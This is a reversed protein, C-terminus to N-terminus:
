LLVALAIASLLLAADRVFIDNFGTQTLVFLLHVAMGWAAIRRVLRHPFLLATALLLEIGGAIRLLVQSSVGSMNETWAAIWGLWLDPRLFKDIGFIGFLGVFAILLTGRAAKTREMRQLTAYAADAKKWEKGHLSEACKKQASQEEESAVNGATGPVLIHLPRNNNFLSSNPINRHLADEDDDHEDHNGEPHPRPQTRVIRMINRIGIGVMRM